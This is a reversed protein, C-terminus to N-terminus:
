QGADKMIQKALNFLQAEKSYRMTKLAEHKDDYERRRRLEEAKSLEETRSYFDYDSFRLQFLTQKAPDAFEYVLADTYESNVYCIWKTQDQGFTQHLWKKLEVQKTTTFKTISVNEFKIFDTMFTDRTQAM